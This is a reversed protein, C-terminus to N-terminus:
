VLSLINDLPGKHIFKLLIYIKENMFICRFINDAYQPGNQAPSYTDAQDRLSFIIETLLIHIFIFVYKRNMYSNHLYRM